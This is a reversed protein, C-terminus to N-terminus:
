INMTGFPGFLEVRFLPANLHSRALPLPLPLSFILFCCLSPNHIFSPFFYYQLYRVVMMSPDHVDRVVLLISPRLINQMWLLTSLCLVASPLFNIIVWLFGGFRKIFQSFDILIENM